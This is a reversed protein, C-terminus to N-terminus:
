IENQRQKLSLLEPLAALLKIKVSDIKLDASLCFDWAVNVSFLTTQVTGTVAGQLRNEALPEIATQIPVLRMAQAETTLYTAIAERGVVERDFPPYLVGDEAFLYATAAFEGANLTTFYQTIVATAHDFPAVSADGAPPSSSIM